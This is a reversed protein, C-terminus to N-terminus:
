DVIMREHGFFFSLIISRGFRQEWALVEPRKQIQQNLQSFIFQSFEDKEISGPAFRAEIEGSFDPKQQDLINLTADFIMNSLTSHNDHALVIVWKNLGNDLKVLMSQFYPEEISKNTTRATLPVPLKEDKGYLAPNGFKEFPSGSEIGRFRQVFLLGKPESTDFGKVIVADYKQGDHTVRGEYCMVIQDYTEKDDALMKEFMENPDGNAVLRVLKKQGDKHLMMFPTFPGDIDHRSWLAHNMGTFVAEELRKNENFLDM